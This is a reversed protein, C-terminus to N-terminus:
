GSQVYASSAETEDALCPYSYSGGKLTIHMKLLLVDM